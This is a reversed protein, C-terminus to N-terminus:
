GCVEVIECPESPISTGHCDPTEADDWLSVPDPCLDAGFGSKERSWFMM